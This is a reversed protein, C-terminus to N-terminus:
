QEKDFAATDFILVIKNIKGNSAEFMSVMPVQVGPKSFEYVLCACSETEFTRIIEYRFGVPPDAKLSDIYAEATDCEYFPGRFAFKEAFLDRLQDIDKGAFVIDMYKLALELPRMGCQNAM